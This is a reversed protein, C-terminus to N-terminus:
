VRKKKRSKKKKKVNMADPDMGLPLTYGVIAGTGSFEDLKELEEVVLLKVFQRIDEEVDM